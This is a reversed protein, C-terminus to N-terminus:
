LPAPQALSGPEPLTATQHAPAPIAWRISDFEGCAPCLMQWTQSQKACAQCQWLPDPAALPARALWRQAEHVGMGQAQVLQAMLLCVRRSTSVAADAGALPTLLDRARATEGVALATEAGLLRSELHEPNAGILRRMRILRQAPTEGSALSGYATALDPHPNLAWIKELVRGAKDPKGSAALLRAALVAAPVLDPAGKLAQQSFELAQTEAGQELAQCAEAFALIGQRRNREQRTILKTQAARGLTERAQPWAGTACEIEFKNRVVWPSKPHLQLARDVLRAAYGMDGDRMALTLLGRLGLFETEPSILMAQFYGRAAAADKRLEAAQAQMLLSLPAGSLLRDARAAYNKAAAADGAAIATMGRTLAQLGGQQRVFQGRAGRWRSYIWSPLRLLAFLIAGLIILVAMSTEIRYGQWDLQLQGPHDALWAVASALAVTLVFLRLLKGM